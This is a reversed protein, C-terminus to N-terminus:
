GPTSGGVLARQAVEIRDLRGEQPQRRRGEQAALHGANQGVHIPKQGLRVRTPRPHLPHGGLRFGLLEHRGLAACDHRSKVRRVRLAAPVQQAHAAEPVDHEDGGGCEHRKGDPECINPALRGSAIGNHKLGCSSCFTTHGM